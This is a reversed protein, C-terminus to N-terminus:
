SGHPKSDRYLRLLCMTILVASVIAQSVPWWLTEFGGWAAAIWPWCALGALVWLLALASGLDQRPPSQRGFWINMSEM